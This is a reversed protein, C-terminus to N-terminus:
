PAAELTSFYARLMRTLVQERYARTSRHDDIPALDYRILELWDTVRRPSVGKDLADEVARCRRVTPAMGNVAVRWAAATRCLALGVKSIIQARRGGVKEFYVNSRQIRPVRLATILQGPELGTRRYGTYFESLPYESCGLSSRVEVVADCAMLAMVGDAAPSANAVNGAWTGRAQVQITGVQRAALALLPFADCIKQSSLLDWYTATAGISLADETLHLYRLEQVQALDILPTDLEHRRETWHVFLDTGGAVPRAMPHIALQQLAQDISRPQILHM